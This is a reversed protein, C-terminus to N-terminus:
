TWAYRINPTARIQAITYVRILGRSKCCSHSHEETIGTRLLTLNEFLTGEFIETRSFYVGIKDRLTKLDYSSIPM